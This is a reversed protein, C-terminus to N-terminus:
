QEMDFLKEYMARKANETNQLWDKRELYEDAEADNLIEIKVSYGQRVKPILVYRGYFCSIIKQIRTEKVM